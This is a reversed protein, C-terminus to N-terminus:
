RKLETGYTLRVEPGSTGHRLSGGGVAGTVPVRGLSNPGPGVLSGSLNGSPPSAYTTDNFVMTWSGPHGVLHGEPSIPTPSVSFDLADGEGNALSFVGSWSASGRGLYVNLSATGDLRRQLPISTTDRVFATARGIPDSHLSYYVAGDRVAAFETATLTRGAAYVGDEFTSVTSVGQTRSWEGWVWDTGGAQNHLWGSGDGSNDDYHAIYEDGGLYETSNPIGITSDDSTNAPDFRLEIGVGGAPVTKDLGIRTRGENAVLTDYDPAPPGTHGISTLVGSAYPEMQQMEPLMYGYFQEASAYGFYSWAQTPEITGGSPKPLQGILNALGGGSLTGPTFGSYGGPPLVSPLGPLGALIRGVIDQSEQLSGGQFMAGGDTLSPIGLGFAGDAGFDLGIGMGRGPGSVPGTTAGFPGFDPGGAGPGPAGAQALQPFVLGAIRRFLDADFPGRRIRGEADVSCVGPSRFHLPHGGLAGILVETGEDVFDVAFDDRDPGILGALGCGRIGITSRGTTVKFKAPNLETIKGTVARFSGRGVRASFSNKEKAKPDFVYEDLVVESNEGQAFMSDDGFLIQVRSAAETRLTENQFVPAKLALARAQGGQPTATASGDLGVVQGIPDAARAAIAAAALGATMWATLTRM